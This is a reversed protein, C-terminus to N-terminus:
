DDRHDDLLPVQLDLNGIAGPAIYVWSAREIRPWMVPVRRPEHNETQSAREQDEAHPQPLADSPSLSTKGLNQLVHGPVSAVRLKTARSRRSTGVHSIRRHAHDPTDDPGPGCICSQTDAARDQERGAGERWVCYGMEECACEGRVARPSRVIVAIGRRSGQLLLTGAARIGRRGWFQADEDNLSRNVHSDRTGTCFEALSNLQSMSLM